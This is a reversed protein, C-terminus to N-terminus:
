GHNYRSYQHRQIGLTRGLYFEMITKSPVGIRKGKLDTISKLGSEPPAVIYFLLSRAITGIDLIDNKQFANGVIVFETTMAIDSEGKLLGAVAAVGTDYNKYVPLIGQGKFFGHEEAVYILANLEIPNTGITVTEMKGSYPQPACSWSASATIMAAALIVLAFISKTMKKFNIM